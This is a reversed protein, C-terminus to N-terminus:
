TVALVPPASFVITDDVLMVKTGTAWIAAVGIYYNTGATLNTNTTSFIVDINGTAAATVVFQSPNSTSNINVHAADADALADKITAVIKATSLDYAVGNRDLVNRITLTLTCLTQPDPNTKDSISLSM